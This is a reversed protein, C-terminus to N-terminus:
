PTLGLGSQAESACTGELSRKPIGSKEAMEKITLGHQVALQHLRQVLVNPEPSGTLSMIRKQAGSGTFHQAPHSM